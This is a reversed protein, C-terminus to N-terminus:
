KVKYKDILDRDEKTIGSVDSQPVGLIKLFNSIDKAASLAARRTSTPLSSDNAANSENTVRIRLYSDIAKARARMQPPSDMIKPSLNIEEKLRNIEGVPFRPNISLARILDNQAGSVFQRAFTTKEAIPLGFTGTAFSGASLAASAVGTAKSSLDWITHQVKGTTPEAPTEGASVLRKETGTVTNVLYRSGSVEDAMVKITGVVVGTAEQESMGENTRMLDKIQKQYVVDAGTGGAKKLELAEAKTTAVWKKPTQRAEAEKALLSRGESSGGLLSRREEGPEMGIGRTFSGQEEGTKIGERVSTLVGEQTKTLEGQYSAILTNLGVLADQGSINGKKYSDFTKIAGDLMVKGPASTADFREGFSIVEENTYYGLAEM